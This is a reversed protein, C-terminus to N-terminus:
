RARRCIRPTHHADAKGPAISRLTHDKRGGGKEGGMDLTEEM